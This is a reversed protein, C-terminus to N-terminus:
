EYKSYLPPTKGSKIKNTFFSTILFPNRTEVKVVATLYKETVPTNEFSKFYLHVSADKDSKRVEDPDKLTEEIKSIQNKMEPHTYIHNLREETLRIDRQRYDSFIM